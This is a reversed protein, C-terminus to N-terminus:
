RFGPLAPRCRKLNGIVSAVMSIVGSGQTRDNVIKDVPLDPQARQL